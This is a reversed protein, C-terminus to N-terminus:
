VNKPVNVGFGMYGAKDVMMLLGDVRPHDEMSQKIWRRGDHVYHSFKTMAELAENLGRINRIDIKGVDGKQKQLGDEKSESGTIQFWNGSLEAVEYNNHQPWGNTDSQIGTSDPHTGMTSEMEATQGRSKGM